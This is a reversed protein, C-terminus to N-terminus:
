LHKRLEALDIQFARCVGRIYHDALETKAGNHLPITYIVSGRKAKWHSGTSPEEVSVGFEKLARIVDRARAPM